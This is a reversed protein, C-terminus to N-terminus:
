LELEQRLFNEGSWAHVFLWNVGSNYIYPLIVIFFMAVGTKYNFRNMHDIHTEIVIM